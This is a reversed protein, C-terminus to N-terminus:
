TAKGDSGGTTSETSKVILMLCNHITGGGGVTSTICVAEVMRLSQVSGLRTTIAM